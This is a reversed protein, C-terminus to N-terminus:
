RHVANEAMHQRQAHDDDGADAYREACDRKAIPYQIFGNARLM